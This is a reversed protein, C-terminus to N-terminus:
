LLVVRYGTYICITAVLVDTTDQRMEDCKLERWLAMGDLSELYGYKIYKSCLM